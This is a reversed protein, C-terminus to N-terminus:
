KIPFNKIAKALSLSQKFSIDNMNIYWWLGNLCSIENIQFLCTDCDCSYQQSYECGFCDDQIHRNTSWLSKIISRKMEFKFKTHTEKMHNVIANWLKKHANIYDQKTKLVLKM